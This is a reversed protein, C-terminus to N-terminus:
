NPIAYLVSDFSNYFHQRLYFKYSPCYAELLSPIEWLDSPRHYMSLVLAPRSREILNKAGQLAAIEAGEVDFKIFNVKANPLIEDLSVAAIHVDGYESITGGEGSGSFSLIQYRSSVALPLCIPTLGSSKTSKVLETFNSPDPEFLYASTINFKKVAEHFTDGNYAGCDIYTFTHLLSATSVTLENFYQNESHRFSAYENKLGMRFRCIDLLTKKSEEDALLQFAREIGDLNQLLTAKDSLWYRWGLDAGFESYIDWPMFINKFGFSLAIDRLGDFPMDRNYIGILLQATSGDGAIEEWSYVPLGIAESSRPNSEIFGLLNFGDKLLIKAVSMGFSGAGFIYIPKSKCIKNSQNRKAALCDEEFHRFMSEQAHDM